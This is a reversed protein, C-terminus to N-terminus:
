RVMRERAWSADDRPGVQRKRGHAARWGRGVIATRRAGCAHRTQKLRHPLRQADSRPRARHPPAPAPVFLQRPRRPQVSAARLQACAASSAHQSSAARQRSVRRDQPEVGDHQRRPGRTHAHPEKGRTASASSATSQLLHIARTEFGAVVTRTHSGKSVTACTGLRVGVACGSAASDCAACGCMWVDGSM